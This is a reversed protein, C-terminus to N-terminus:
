SSKQGGYLYHDLNKSLDTPVTEWDKAPVDKAIKEFLTALNETGNSPPRQAEREREQLLELGESVVEDASRYRGSRVQEAIRREIEPSLSIKM